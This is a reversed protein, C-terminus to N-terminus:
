TIMRKGETISSYNGGDWGPTVTRGPSPNFRVWPHLFPSHRSTRSYSEAGKIVAPDPSGLHHGAGTTGARWAVLDPHALCFTNGGMKLDSASPCM